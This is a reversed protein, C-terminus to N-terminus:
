RVPEPRSAPGLAGLAPDSRNTWLFVLFWALSAFGALVAVVVVFAASGTVETPAVLLNALLPILLVALVVWRILNATRRTREIAVVDRIGSGTGFLVVALVAGEVASLVSGPAAFLLPLGLVVGCTAAVAAATFWPSRGVLRALGGLM